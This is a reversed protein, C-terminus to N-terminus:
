RRAVQPPCFGSTVAAATFARRYVFVYPQRNLLNQPLKESRQCKGTPACGARNEPAPKKNDAM